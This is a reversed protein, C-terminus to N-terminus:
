CPGSATLSDVKNSPRQIISARLLILAQSTGNKLLAPRLPLAAHTCAPDSMSSLHHQRCARTVPESRASEARQCTSSLRCLAFYSQLRRNEKEPRQTPSSGLPRANQTANARLYWHQGVHRPLSVAGGDRTLERLPEQFTPHHM